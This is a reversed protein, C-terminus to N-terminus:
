LASSKLSSHKGKILYFTGYASGAERNRESLGFLLRSEGPLFRRRSFLRESQRFPEQNELTPPNFTQLQLLVGHHNQHIPQGPTVLRTILQIRSRSSPYTDVSSCPIQAGSSDFRELIASARHVGAADSPSKLLNNRSGSVSSLESAREEWVSTTKGSLPRRM